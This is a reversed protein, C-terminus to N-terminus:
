RPCVIVNKNLKLYDSCLKHLYQTTNTNVMGKSTHSFTFKVSAFRNNIHRAAECYKKFFHQCRGSSPCQVAGFFKAQARKHIHQDKYKNKSAKTHMHTLTHTQMDAHMYTCMRSLIITFECVCCSLCLSFCECVYVHMCARVYVCLGYVQM